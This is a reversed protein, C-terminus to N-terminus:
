TNEQAVEPKRLNSLHSLPPISLGFALAPGLQWNDPQAATRMMQLKCRTIGSTEFLEPYLSQFDDGTCVIMLGSRPDVNHLPTNFFFQVGFKETLFQPLCGVILRPDVTMETSSWIAGRLDQPNLCSSRALTQQANLWACQYGHPPAKECFEMGVVAEDEEYAAHLSGTDLYPLNAAQLVEQWIDRSRLAITYLEGPPQGIPWILGFNRVSAGSAVPNREFVAVKLGSKAAIYAHALGVIGAGVVTLDFEAPTM